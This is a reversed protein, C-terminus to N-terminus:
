KETSKDVVTPDPSDKMNAGLKLPLDSGELDVALRAGYFGTNFDVGALPADVGSLDFTIKGGERKVTGQREVAPEARAFPKDSIITGRASTRGSPDAVWLHWGDFDVWLYAGPKATKTVDAMPEGTRGFVPPRFEVATAWQAARPGTTTTTRGTGKRQTTSTRDVRAGVEDDGKRTAVLIAVVGLVAVALLIVILPSIGTRHEDVDDDDVWIDDDDAVLDDNENTM